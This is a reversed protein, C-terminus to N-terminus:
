DRQRCAKEGRWRHRGIAPAVGRKASAQASHAATCKTGFHAMATRAAQDAAGHYPADDPVRNRAVIAFIAVSSFLLSVSIPIAISVVVSVVTVPCPAIIPSIVAIIPRRLTIRILRLPGIRIRGLPAILHVEDSSPLHGLIGQAFSNVQRRLECAV